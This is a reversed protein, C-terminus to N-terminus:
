EVVEATSPPPAPNRRPKRKFRRGDRALGPLAASLRQLSLSGLVIFFPVYLYLFRARGESFMLFVFLGLLAVRATAVARSDLPPGRLLVGAGCLALLLFWTGQWFNLLLGFGPRGPGFFDQISRSLQDDAIFESATMRGEGWAFFSGDGTMWRLKANLFEPYGAPGREAVRDLYAQWAADFRAQPDAVALTTSRDEENYAGYYDGHPGPYQQVGVKLFHTAPLAYENASVGEAPVGSSRVWAGIGAYAGAFACAAATVSLVAVALDRRWSARRVSLLVVLSAAVLVILATPKIGYGVASVTGAAAWLLLRAPLRCRGAALLLCFVLITLPLAAIDSYFVPLWPSLVILAASPVLTLRAARRGGLLWAAAWTLLMGCFLLAASLYATSQRLDQSGLADAAGLFRSLLLMLLVNNPNVQFYARDAAEPVGQDALGYASYYVAAADWDPPLRVADALRALVTFVVAWGLLSGLARIWRFRVRRDILELLWPVLLMVGLVLVGLLAAAWAEYRSFGYSPVALNSVLLWLVLACWFLGASRPLLGARGCAKNFRGRVAAQSGPVVARAM